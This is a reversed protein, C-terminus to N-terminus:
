RESTVFLVVLAVALSAAMLPEWDGTRGTHYAAAAVAVVGLLSLGVEIREGVTITPASDRVM